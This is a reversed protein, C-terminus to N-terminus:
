KKMIGRLNVREGGEIMESSKKKTWHTRSHLITYYVILSLILILIILIVIYIKERQAVKLSVIEFNDSASAVEGDYTAKVYLVYNGIKTDKPLGIRKVFNVQTEIALSEVEKAIENNEYDMIIYEILVDKRGSSDGLNFLRIEALIEEGPLIGKYNQLIEARVDLLIGESEVEISILVEKKTSGSSIIIKGLYLNPVADVRAFLHLQVVKSEGPNLVVAEEGRIIFDPLLNEIGVRIIQSGTNTILIEETKIQGPNLSVSIQNKDLIFVGTNSVSGGGGGGSPTTSTEEGTPTEEATYTTFQTVNFVFTGGSYNIETCITSPCAAGDRLVRPNTLSLNYLYITASKNFNPLTTSDLEISNNSITIYSDLNVENDSSVDDNTVNIAANFVIKGFNTNELIIGSLDQLDEYMSSNFDTSVGKTSGSYNNYHVIFKTTDVTFTINKSSTEQSNNAFLYLTHLGNTTNFTANGTITANAGGDINYIIYNVSSDLTFNLNLNTNTIYTGNEPSIISATPTSTQSTFSYIGSYLSDNLNGIPQQYFLSGEGSFSINTVNGNSTGPTDYGSYTSSNLTTASIIFTSILFLLFILLATLSISIIIFSSSKIKGNTVNLKNKAKM